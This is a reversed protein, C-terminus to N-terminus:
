TALVYGILILWGWRWAWFLSLAEYRGYELDPMARKEMQLKISNFSAQAATYPEIEKLQGNLRKAERSSDSYRKQMTEVDVVNPNTESQEQEESPSTLTNDSLSNSTLQSTEDLIGGNVSKDLEEFFDQNGGNDFIADVPSQNPNTNELEPATNATGQQQAM